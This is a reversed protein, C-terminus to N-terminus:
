GPFELDFEDAIKLLEDALAAKLPIGNEQRDAVRRWEIEGPVLVEDFGPSTASNKMSEITEDVTAKFEEVGSFSAIDAAILLHSIEAPGRGSRGRRYGTFPQGALVGCLLGLMIALGSGKHGGFPQMVAAEQDLSVRGDVRQSFAIDLVLPDDHRCTLAIAIPNNGLLRERSGWPAMCAVTTTTAVGIMDQEAAMLAYYALAGNHNSNVVHVWGVGLSQAKNIAQQMGFTTSVQGLAQDADIVMGVTSERIVKMGPNRNVMGDQIRQVYGPLLDIAHTDVGRLNAQSLVEVVTRADEPSIGLKTLVSETFEDLQRYPVWIMEGAMM